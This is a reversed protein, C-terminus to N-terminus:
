LFTFTTEAITNKHTVALFLLLGRILTQTDDDLPYIFYIQTENGHQHLFLSVHFTENNEEITFQVKKNLAGHM